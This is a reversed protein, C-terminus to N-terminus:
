QCDRPSPSTYLLCNGNLDRGDWKLAGDHNDLNYVKDYVKEMAFNFIELKALRNAVVGTHFRVYGESGLQNHNQPSFPNPYAYFQDPDYETQFITWHNGDLDTSFALGDSTGIWLLDTTDTRHREVFRIIIKPSM